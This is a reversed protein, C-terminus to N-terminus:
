FRNDMQQKNKRTNEEKAKKKEQQQQNTQIINNTQINNTQIIFPQKSSFTVASRGKLIGPESIEQLVQLM